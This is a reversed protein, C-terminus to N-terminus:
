IGCEWTRPTSLPTLTPLQRHQEPCPPSGWHRLALHSQWIALRNFTSPQLHPEDTLRPHAGAGDATDPAQLTIPPLLKYAHPGLCSASDEEPSQLVDYRSSEVLGKLVKVSSFGFVLGLFPTPKAMM